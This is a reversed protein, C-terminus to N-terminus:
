EPVGAVYKCLDIFNPFQYLEFGNDSIEALSDEIHKAFCSEYGLEVNRFFFNGGSNCLLHYRNVNDFRKVALVPGDKPLVAEVFITPVEENKRIIKKM